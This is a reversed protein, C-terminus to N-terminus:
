SFAMYELTKRLKKGKIKKQTRPDGDLIDCGEGGQYKKFYCTLRHTRLESIKNSM